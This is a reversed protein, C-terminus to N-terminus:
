AVRHKFLPTIGGDIRLDTGTIFSAEPSILFEVAAAIDDPRGWRKIPTMDLMPKMLPQSAFEQQGMPTDIMGPSITVIRGGRAGWDAAVAECYLMVGRKSISYATEPKEADPGLSDIFGDALPRTLLADLSHASASMHGATSAILVAVTGHEVLPLFAREVLATGILNVEIIRRGSAMTPSVGAAHVLASLRGLSRVTEALRTVAENDTIDVPIATAKIGTARLKAAAATLRDPKADVLVLERQWGLRRACALGIGSAGGTVVAVSNKISQTEEGM